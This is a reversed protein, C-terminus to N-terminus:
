SYDEARPTQGRELRAAVKDRGAETHVFIRNRGDSVTWGEVGRYSAKRTRVKPLPRADMMSADTLIVPLPPTPESWGVPIVHYITPGGQCTSRGCGGPRLGPCQVFRLRDHILRAIAEAVEYTDPMEDAPQGIRLSVHLEVASSREIM